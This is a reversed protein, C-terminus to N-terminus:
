RKGKALAKMRERAGPAPAEIRAKEVRVIEGMDLNLQEVVKEYNEQSVAAKSANIFRLDDAAKIRHIQGNMSWFRRAPMALV